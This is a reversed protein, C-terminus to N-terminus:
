PCRGCSNPPVRKIAQATCNALKYLNIGACVTCAACAPNMFHPFSACAQCSAYCTFLGGTTATQAFSNHLCDGFAAADFITCYPPPFPNPGSPPTGPHCGGTCSTPPGLPPAPPPPPGITANNGGLLLGQPDTYIISNANAYLYLNNGAMLGLPDTELYRGINQNYDRNLNYHLATESDYYQGPFRLNNTIVSLAMTAEGFPKYDATWVIAGTSDTLKQPTGLHDNHYYYVNNGELKVLPQGNLYVYESTDTGDSNSEAMIQGILNYHFITATGNVVKKVRQGNGNYTYEGKTVGADVVRILRQNQNYVFERGNETYTNGNSDFSFNKSLSGTISQLKNTGGYYSYINTGTGTAESTRNGVGDYNWDLSGWIGPASATDLRDLTDYTFSRDKGPDLLNQISKINGNADYSSYSLNLITGATISTIHYQNDYGINGIIGNGYAISSMGGFPKYTISTAINAANNMVSIVQDNSYNYTIVRGSPYMITKINGNMDYSYETTYTHNDIVKTERKTQGKPSYEYSTTGAADTMTCLRGKGNLCTDYAYVIDTDSPFDIKKIRNLTDYVYTITVNKADTKGILNGAPDYSYTTAGSDPSIVQYVRGKDDYKYITTNNNADKVSTLNNSNYGYSTTIKGPQTVGTLRSLADYAYSTKNGNPDIVASLKGAYDYRYETYSNNPNRIQEVRNLADYQYDLTKQLLGSTDRIEEKLRNGESDYSYNISNGANDSIKVLNGSSDYDYDIKNGEPLIIYDIKNGGGSGCTTCGTSVYFYETAASDGPAKTTKVRGASDYTYTTVNGNPDSVTRPNGLGDHNSYATTGILPQTVGTLYDTVPDYTYTTIDQVDTRPGDVSKLKGDGYYDYATIYTYAQGDGLFGMEIMSKMNGNTNDYNYKIYKYQGPLVVSAVIENALKHFTVSTATPDLEYVYYYWTTKKIPDWETSGPNSAETKSKINGYSDYTYDTAARLVLTPNNISGINEWYEERLVRMNSDRTYIKVTGFTDTEKVIRGNTDFEVTRVQKNLVTGSSDKVTTTVRTKRPELYETDIVGTGHIQQVVRGTLDYVNTYKGQGEDIGTMRHANGPDDYNYSANVVSSTVSTLNGINDHGYSIVRGLSDSISNLRGSSFDYQFIVWKGTPTGTADKEVINALRYDYSVVLPSTGINSQLLGWLAYRSASEYTYVLSNGKPDVLSSLRGRVDYNERSGDKETYTFSGDANKVLTGAEGLPTVYSGGSLTFRRKWGCEKRLTVSGDPYTYIRRDHNLAWGYGLQSDYGSKSNYRRQITIPYLSGLTLDTRAFTEAGNLLSFPKGAFSGPGALLLDESCAQDDERDLSDVAMVVGSTVLVILISSLILIARKIWRSMFVEGCFM